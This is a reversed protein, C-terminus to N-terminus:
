QVVCKDVPQLVPDCRYAPPIDPCYKDCPEVYSGRIYCYSHWLDNVDKLKSKSKIQMYECTFLVIKTLHNINTMTFQLNIYYM